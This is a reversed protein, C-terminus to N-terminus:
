RIRPKNKRTEYYKIIAKAVDKKAQVRFFPKMIKLFKYLQQYQIKWRAIPKRDKGTATKSMKDHYIYGQKFDKHMKYILPIDTNCVELVPHYCNYVKGASNRTPRRYLKLSGEGDIIGAYYAYDREKM